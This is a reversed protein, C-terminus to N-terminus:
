GIPPRLLRHRPAATFEREAASASFTSPASPRLDSFELPLALTVICGCQCTAGDTCCPRQAKREHGATANPQAQHQHCHGPMAAAAGPRDTMTDNAAVPPAVAGNLILVLALLWRLPLPLSALAPRSFRPM